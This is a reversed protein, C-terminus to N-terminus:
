IKIKLRPKLQGSYKRALTGIKADCIKSIVKAILEGINAYKFIILFIFITHDNIYYGVSM